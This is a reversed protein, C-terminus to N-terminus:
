LIRETQLGVRYGVLIDMCRERDLADCAKRIGLFVKYLVEERMPTLQHLLKAKLYASGTGLNVRFIHIMYHFKVEAGIQWNVVRLLSKWLVEVLGIGRFEGNVKTTIVVTNCTCEEPLRVERFKTQLIDVVRDLNDTDPREKCTASEMWSQLNEARM